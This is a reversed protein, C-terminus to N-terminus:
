FRSYFDNMVSTRGSQPLLYERIATRRAEEEKQRKQNHCEIELQEIAKAIKGRLKNEKLWANSIKTGFSIGFRRLTFSELSIPLQSLMTLVLLFILFNRM